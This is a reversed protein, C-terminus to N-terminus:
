FKKDSNMFRFAEEETFLDLETKGLINEPKKGIIESFAKNVLLYKHNSDKVFVPDPIIELLDKLFEDTKTM